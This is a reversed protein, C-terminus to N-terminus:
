VLGLRQKVERTAAAKQRSRKAPTTCVLEPATPVPQLDALFQEVDAITTMLLGGPGRLAALKVVRGDPARLGKHAWRRLTEAHPAHGAQSLLGVAAVADRLTMLKENM